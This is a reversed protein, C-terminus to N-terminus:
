PYPFDLFGVRVGGGPTPPTWLPPTETPSQAPLRYWQCPAFGVLLPKCDLVRRPLNRGAQMKKLMLLM